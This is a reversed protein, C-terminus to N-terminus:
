ARVEELVDRLHPYRSLDCGKSRFTRCEAHPMPYGTLQVRAGTKDNVRVVHYVKGTTADKKELSKALYRMRAAAISYGDATLAYSSDRAAGVGNPADVFVDYSGARNLRVSVRGAQDLIGGEGIPEWPRSSKAVIKKLGVKEM